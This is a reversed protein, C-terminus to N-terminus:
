TVVIQGSMSEHGDGCFIDCLFTFTGAKDPTLAVRMPKGPVVDSRVGFDPLNFGMMIDEATLEFVVPEGKKLEIRNPTFVWRRTKVKIVRPPKAKQALASGGLALAAVSLAGAALFTRRHKVM